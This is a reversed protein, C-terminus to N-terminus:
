ANSLYMFKYVCIKYWKGSNTSNLRDQSFNHYTIKLLDLIRKQVSYLVGIEQPSSLDKAFTLTEM